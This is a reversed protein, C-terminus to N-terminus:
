HQISFYDSNTRLDVCFVYICSHPCFTSNSFTLHETRVACYVCKRETILVILSHEIPFYDGNKDWLWMSLYQIYTCQPRFSSHKPSDVFNRFTVIPKTVDTQGCLVVPSGSSLNEYFKINSNKKSVGDLFGFNWWFRVLIVLVKCSPWCVYKTMNRGTRRRILFTESLLKLSFWVV